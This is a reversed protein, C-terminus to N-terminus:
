AIEKKPIHKEMTQYKLIMRDIEEQDKKSRDEQLSEESEGKIFLENKQIFAGVTAKIEENLKRKYFNYLRQSEIGNLRIQKVKWIGRCQARDIKSRNEVMTIIQMLIQKEHKTKYRYEFIGYNDPDVDEYTLNLDNLIRDLHRKARPKEHEAGRKYVQILAEVKRQYELSM